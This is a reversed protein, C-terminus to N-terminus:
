RSEVATLGRCVIRHLTADADETTLLSLRCDATDGSSKLVVVRNRVLAKQDDAVVLTLNMRTLPKFHTEGIWNVGFPQARFLRCAIRPQNRYQEWLHGLPIDVGSGPEGTYITVRGHHDILINAPKIDRHIIGHLHAYELADAIDLTWQVARDAPPSPGAIRDALTGGEVFESVIFCADGGRGVPEDIRYRGLLVRCMAAPAHSQDTGANPPPFM